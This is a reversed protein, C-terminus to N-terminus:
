LETVETETLVASSSQHDPLLKLCALLCPPKYVRCLHLLSCFGQGVSKQHSNGILLSCVCVKALDRSLVKQIGIKPIPLLHCITAMAEQFVTAHGDQPLQGEARSDLDQLDTM